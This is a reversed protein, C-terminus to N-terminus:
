ATASARRRRATTSSTASTAAAAAASFRPACWATATTASSPSTTRTSPSTSARGAPAPSSSRTPRSCRCAACGAPTSAPRRTTSCRAASRGSRAKTCSSVAAGRAHARRGAARARGREAPAPRLRQRLTTSRCHPKAAMPSEQFFIHRREREIPDREPSILEASGARRRLRSHRYGYFAYISFGLATWIALRWWTDRPLFVDDRPLRARRARLHRARLARPFPRHQDPRTYRLVLVGICVVAFALLIGISILEGLVDLPFLGAFLAAFVGTIVTAVHPTKYRPHCRSMFPPLLGDDAMALLIRPQGLLSMLIVSTM